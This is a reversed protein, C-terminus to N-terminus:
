QKKRSFLWEEWEGNEPRALEVHHFSYTQEQGHVAGAAEMEEDTFIKLTVDGGAQKLADAAQKGM